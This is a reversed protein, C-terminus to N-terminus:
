NKPEKLLLKMGCLCCIGDKAFEVPHPCQDGFHLDGMHEVAELLDNPNVKTRDRAIRHNSDATM